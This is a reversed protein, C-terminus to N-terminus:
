LPKVGRTLFLTVTHEQIALGSVLEQMEFDVLGAASFMDKMRGENFGGRHAVHKYKEGKVFDNQTSDALIDIILLSGGPKVVSALIKTVDEPSGFHHYAMTCLVVDFQQTFGDLKGDGRLVVCLSNLKDSLGHTSAQRNYQDVAKQSVTDVGLISKVHPSLERSFLGAGCAYDLVTTTRANFIQM